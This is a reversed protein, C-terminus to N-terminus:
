NERLLSITRQVYDRIVISDGVRSLSESESLRMSWLESGDHVDWARLRANEDDGDDGYVVTTGLLEAVGPLGHRREGTHIDLIDTSEGTELVISGPVTGVVYGPDGRYESDWMPEGTLPDLRMLNVFGFEQNDEARLLVEGGSGTQNLLVEADGSWLAAGELDVGDVFAGADSEDLRLVVDELVRYELFSDAGAFWPPPVGTEADLWLTAEASYIVVYGSETWSSTGAESPGLPATWVPDGGLDSTDWRSVSDESISVLPSTPDGHNIATEVVHPFEARSVESGDIPSLAHLVTMAEDDPSVVALTIHGEPSPGVLSAEWKPSAVGFDELGVSWVDQGTTTDIESVHGFTPLLDPQEARNCGEALADEGDSFGDAWGRYTDYEDLSEVLDYTVGDLSFFDARAPYEILNTDDDFYAQYAEGYRVGDDYGTAYHEDYGEYWPSVDQESYHYWDLAALVAVRDAGLDLITPWEEIWEEDGQPAFQYTWAKEPTTEIDTVVYTSSADGGPRAVLFWAAAGVGAVALLSVLTVVLILRSHRKPPHPAAPPGGGASSSGHRDTAPWDSNSMM